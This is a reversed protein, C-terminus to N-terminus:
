AHELFHVLLRVGFGTGGKKTYDVESDSWSTGAIDLHAWPTKDVFAALFAGATIAGAERRIIGLNRVDAYDSKIQEHYERWFPLQWLREGSAMGSEVLKTILEQNTGMIGACVGGLAVVCAGTLTALDIMLDPKLNKETYALADSLVVRGEADTNAIEITKGSYTKIIDGPKYADMGPMNETSAFVGVLNVKLKLMASARVTAIVTAAGCMDHKMTLMGEDNKIDLGGSDFTIGKGVLAIKKGGGNYEMIVFRPEHVSGRNVALLASLGLQEISKKDHSTVKVGFKEQEEAVDALEKPHRSSAPENALDRVLCACEAIVVGKRVSSDSGGVLTVKTISKIKQRDVTRYKLYQYAGLVSGEAVAQSRLEKTTGAVDLDHLTTAYDVVGCYDRVIKASMGAGKRLLELDADEKKGLGILLINKAPIKDLTSILRNQGYEGEFEKRKLVHAIAGHLKEDIAKLEATMQAPVFMGVVVLETEVSELKADVVRVDM